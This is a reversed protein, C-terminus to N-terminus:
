IEEFIIDDCLIERCHAGTRGSYEIDSPLFHSLLQLSSIEEVPM